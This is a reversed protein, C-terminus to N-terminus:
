STQPISLEMMLLRVTGDSPLVCSNRMTSLRTCLTATLHWATQFAHQTNLLTPSNAWLSPCTMAAMNSLIQLALSHYTPTSLLSFRCSIHWRRRFSQFCAQLGQVAGFRLSSFMQFNDPLRLTSLILQASLSKSKSCLTSTLFLESHMVASAQAKTLCSSSCIQSPM